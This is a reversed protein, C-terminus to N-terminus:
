PLPETVTGAAARQRARRANIFSKVCLGVFVACTVAMISRSIAAAPREVEGGVLLTALGVLGSVSGLFGLLGVAAALHMAHKRLNEKRALLGLPLLVVGFFAPILATWSVQDTAVYGVVGVVILIVGFVIAVPSM